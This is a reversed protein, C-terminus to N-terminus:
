NEGYTFCKVQKVAGGTNVIKESCDIHHSQSENTSLGFIQTTARTINLRKKQFDCIILVLICATVNATTIKLKVRTLFIM